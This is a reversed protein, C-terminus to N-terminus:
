LRKKFGLHSQGYGLRAYFRHADTRAKNSTLEIFPAGAERAVREAHAMMAAGIGQGRTAEAVQVSEVKARLGGRGTITPILTLQFSGLVTEREMAVFLTCDPSAAIRAFAAEYAPRTVESWHDGHGGTRDAAHLGIIAPLDSAQAERIFLTM